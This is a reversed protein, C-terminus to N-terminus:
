KNNKNKINKIYNKVLVHNWIKQGFVIKGVSMQGVRLKISVGIPYM